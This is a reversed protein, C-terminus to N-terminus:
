ANWFTWDLLKKDLLSMSATQGTVKPNVLSNIHEFFMKIPWSQTTINM